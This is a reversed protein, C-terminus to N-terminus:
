WLKTSHSLNSLGNWLSPLQTLRLKINNKLDTFYILLAHRSKFKPNIITFGVYKECKTNGTKFTCFVM